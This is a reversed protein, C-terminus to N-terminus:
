DQSVGLGRGGADDVYDHLSPNQKLDPLYFPGIFAGPRRTVRAIIQLDQFIRAEKTM